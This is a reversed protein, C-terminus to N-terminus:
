ISTLQQFLEIFFFLFIVISINKYNIIQLPSLLVVFGGLTMFSIVLFLIGVCIGLTYISLFISIMFLLFGIIKTQKKHTKINKEFGLSHIVKIRETTAYFIYFTFFIITLLITIM